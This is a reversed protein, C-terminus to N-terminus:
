LFFSFAGENKSVNENQIEFIETREGRQVLRNAFWCNSDLTHM